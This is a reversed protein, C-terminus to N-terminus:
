GSSRRRSTDSNEGERDATQSGVVPFVSEFQAASFLRLQYPPRRRLAAAFRIARRGLPPPALRLPARLPCLGLQLVFPLPYLLMLRLVRRIHCARRLAHWSLMCRGLSRTQTNKQWSAIVVARRLM